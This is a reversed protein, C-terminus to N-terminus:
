SLAINYLREHENVVTMDKSLLHCLYLIMAEQGLNNFPSISIFWCRTTVMTPKPSRYEKGGYSSSLFIYVLPQPSNPFSVNFVLHPLRKLCGSYRPQIAIICWHVLLVDDTCYFFFITLSFFVWSPWETKMKIATTRLDIHFQDFFLTDCLRWHYFSKNKKKRSVVLRFSSM